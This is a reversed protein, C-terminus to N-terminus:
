LASKRQRKAHFIMKLYYTRASVSGCVYVTDIAAAKLNGSLMKRTLYTNYGTLSM